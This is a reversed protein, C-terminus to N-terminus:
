FTSAEATTNDLKKNLNTKKGTSFDYSVGLVIMNKNNLIQTHSTYNVLSYDLSKTKYESPMGMWYMGATISWNNSKYTLFLHNNNENTSLFAGDLSYYPINYKYLLNFRKYVSSLIFSNSLYNNNIIRGNNTKLRESAPSIVIKLTLLDNGFFNVSGSIQAGLLSYFDANEYTLAIQNISSDYTYYQNIANVKYNYRLTTNLDFYKNNISYIFSNNFRKQPKLYPNGKSVINPVLQIINNSLASSWPSSPIYSSTFRLQQNKSLQYGLVLKPTFVWDDRTIEATKNHINTLGLGLRYSLKKTKGSFESYFYNEVYNVNYDSQGLLNDLKNSIHNTTTRIGSNLNGNNFKSIYVVEGVFSTQKARLNMQNNFIPDKTITEWEKSLEYSNTDYHSGLINFIFENKDGIKKSYYLDLTPKVYSDNQHKYNTHDKDTNNVSFVSTGKVYSFSSLIEVNFKAQFSSKEQVIIYRLTANQDTYGFHDFRKEKTKYANSNLNYIYSNENKRNNYDRLNISYEVGFNHKGKTFNAYASGNVFGTKFASIGDVGFVYGNEPNRTIINIVQDAKDAWRTPAVDYYEVRIVDEPKISRIQMDSVEIDNILILTIGGKTSKITNSIPDLNLEPLTNLLDKAYRAKEISEKSFTYVAKDVFMKKRQAQILVEKIEISDHDISDKKYVQAKLIFTIFISILLLKYKM